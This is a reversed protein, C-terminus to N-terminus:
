LARLERLEFLGELDGNDEMLKRAYHATYNNNLKFDEYAGNTSMMYHWRLNEWLTKMGVRSGPNVSRFERALEVLKEYVHPNTEHFNWFDEEISM